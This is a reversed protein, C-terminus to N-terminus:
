CLVKLCLGQCLFASSISPMMSLGQMFLSWESLIADRTIITRGVVKGIFKTSRHCDGCVRLNKFIQLPTSLPTSILGFAVKEEDEVDHLVIKTDPVYESEEMLYFLRELEEHIGNIQPHEQDGVIFSYVQKNV